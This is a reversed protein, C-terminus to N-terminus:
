AGDHGRGWCALHGWRTGTVPSQGPGRHPGPPSTISPSLAPLEHRARQTPQSGRGASADRTDPSPLHLGHAAGGPEKSKRRVAGQAGGAASSSAALWDALARLVLESQVRVVQSDAWPRGRVKRGDDMSQPM